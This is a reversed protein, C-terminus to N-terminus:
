THMLMKGIPLPESILVPDQGSITASLPIHNKDFVTIIDTLQWSVYTLIKDTKNETEFSEYRTTEEHFVIEQFRTSSTNLSASISASIPGWGASVNTGISTAMSKSDSSTQSMGSTHTFNITRKEGPAVSYSQSLRRWFQERCVISLGENIIGCAVVVRGSDPPVPKQETTVPFSGIDNPVTLLRQGITHIPSADTLVIVAVLGGTAVCRFVIYTGDMITSSAPSFSLVGDPKLGGALNGWPLLEGTEPDPSQLQITMSLKNTISVDKNMKQGNGGYGTLTGNLARTYIPNM